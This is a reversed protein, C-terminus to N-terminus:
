AVLVLVADGDAAARAVAPADTEAVAVVATTDGAQVVRAGRTLTGATGVVDVTDGVRVPLGDPVAVAVGRAGDPLLAATPSRGGRGVRGATVIEGVALAAVAPRPESPLADLAADPRLALPVSRVEADTADVLEGAAIARTAILTPRSDGWRRRADTAAAASRQVVAGTGVALAITLSWYALPRTALILRLRHPFRV